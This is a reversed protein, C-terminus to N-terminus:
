EIIIFSLFLYLHYYSFAEFAMRVIFGHSGGSRKRKGSRLKGKDGYDRNELGYKRSEWINIKM